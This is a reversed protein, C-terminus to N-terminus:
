LRKESIEAKINKSHEHDVEHVLELKPHPLRHENMDYAHQMAESFIVHVLKISPAGRTDQRSPIRM